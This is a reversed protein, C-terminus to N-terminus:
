FSFETKVVFQVPKIDGARKLPAALDVHLVNAFAARDLAIRLGVGVDALTGGNVTNQNPGGWARGADFFVAGGVRLLRFPYWDTYARQEVSLLMRQDGAQYRSRYGRLGFTGGILLQDAIGGGRLRDVALSAFFLSGATQPAYYKVAAASLTMPLGTSAIKREISAGAQLIRNSSFVYGDSVSASYLFDSRTSGMSALAKTLQLHANFGVVLFEAREILNYNKVKLFGDERLEYRLFLARLDNSVPLPVTAVRGPEVRYTNDQALSGLRYRQTWGDILGPSFGVSADASKLRHRYESVVNGTNYISDIRDDDGWAGRAAFRTDLSYFPRDVILSTRKGDNFSGREFNVRTWGDIAQAYSIELETGKRDVNSTRAFGVSLGTGLLNREKVGFSTKNEGGARSFNGTVDLTWADRTSVEIDVVGDNLAVPKIEVDYRTRSARLLRETEEIKQRSVREGSKFLLVRAIVDMRTPVHLRNVLRYLANNEADVTLDFVNNPTIRIQGITARANELETFSPLNTSAAPEAFAPTAAPLTLATLAFLTSLMVRCTQIPRSGRRAVRAVRAVPAVPALPAMPALPALPSKSKFMTLPYWRMARTLIRRHHAM